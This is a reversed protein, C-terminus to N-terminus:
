QGKAGYRKNAENVVAQRTWDDEIEAPNLVVLGFDHWARRCADTNRREAEAGTPPDANARHYISSVGKSM